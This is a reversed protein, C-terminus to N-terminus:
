RLNTPNESWCSTLSFDIRAFRADSRVLRQRKHRPLLQRAGRARPVPERRARRIVAPQPPRRPEGVDVGHRRRERISRRAVIQVRQRHQRPRLTRSGLPPRAVLVPQAPRARKHRGVPRQPRSNM